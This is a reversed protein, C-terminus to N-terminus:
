ALSRYLALVAAAVASATCQPPLPFPSPHNLADLVVRALGDADGVSALCRAPVIDPLGGAATAVVPKGLALAHLVVSGLGEQRSSMVLVDSERILADAHDVHGLLHVRDGMELREVERELAAREPGEGAIVWHLHPSSARAARAARVLTVQDKAQELAAINAAVPVDSAVGLRARVGFNTAAAARVEAPDVGDPIVTIGAPAIGAAVLGTSVARSVAIVADAHRLASRSRLPFVVRRTAVLRAPHASGMFRRAWVTLTVAHSNHAHMIHPSWELSEVVLRWWARPDLGPGWPIGRVAIGDRAVRRALQSDRRTVLRQEVGPSAALARALLRVQDQGGRYERGSDVHLVRV